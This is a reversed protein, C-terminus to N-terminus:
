ERTTSSADENLSRRFHRRLRAIAARRLSEAEGPLLALRVEIDESQMEDLWLKIVLREIPALHAAAFQELEQATQIDAFSPSTTPHHQETLSTTFVNLRAKGSPVVTSPEAPSRGLLQRMYDITEDAAVTMIWRLFHAKLGATRKWKLYQDPLGFDLREIIRLTVDRACDKAMGTARVSPQRMVYRELKPWLAGILADRAAVDDAATLLIWREFEEPEPENVNRANPPFCAFKPMKVLRVTDPAFGDRM